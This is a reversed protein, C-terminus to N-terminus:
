FCSPAIMCCLPQVLLRRSATDASAAESIVNHAPQANPGEAESKHSRPGDMDVASWASDHFVMLM